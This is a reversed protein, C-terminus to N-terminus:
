RLRAIAQDARNLADEVERAESDAVAGLDQARAEDIFTAAAAILSRAEVLTALEARDHAALLKRLAPALDPHAADQVALWPGRAAPEMELAASFLPEVRRWTERALKVPADASM